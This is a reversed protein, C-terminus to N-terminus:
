DLGAPQVERKISVFKAARPLIDPGQNTQHMHESLYRRYARAGPRGQFIGLMHRAIANIPVGQECQGHAYHTMQEIVNHADLLRDDALPCFIAQEFAQLSMPRQYAERGIMVGDVHDLHASAAAPTQIGGNITITLDPFANKLDYVTAYELPPIERNEKPSLGQLWAKRAHIIFHKVGAQAVCDVFEYLFEPVPSDDIGIRTKISVPVGSAAIMASAMEAVNKPEAMLCAGFRGNQVRDSPCGVNLNIEDFGYPEAVEIAKQLESPDNGGLQLALPHESPHHALFREVDGYLIAGTPVMETYLLTRPAILRHFYRCHRDTWDMM